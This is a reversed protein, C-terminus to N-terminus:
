ALKAEEGGGGEGTTSLVVVGGRGCAFRVVGVEKEKSKTYIQSLYSHKDEAKDQTNWGKDYSGEVIFSM